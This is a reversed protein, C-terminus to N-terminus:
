DDIEGDQEDLNNIIKEMLDSLLLIEEDTLGKSVIQELADMKNKIHETACHGKETLYIKTIRSDNEDSKRIVFGAKEMRKISVSATATAVGIIEAIQGVTLGENHKLILVIHQQGSFLGEENVAENFKRKIMKSARNIRPGLMGRQPPNPLNLEVSM